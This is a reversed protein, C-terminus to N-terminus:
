ASPSPRRSRTRARTRGARVPRAPAAAVPGLGVQEGPQGSGHAGGVGARVRGRRRRGARRCGSPEATGDAATGGPPGAPRQPDGAPTSIESNAIPSATTSANRTGSRIPVTGNGILTSSATAPLAPSVLSATRCVPLMTQPTAAAPARAARSRRATAAAARPRGSRARARQGPQHEQEGTRDGARVADRGLDGTPCPRGGTGPPLTPSLHVGRPLVGVQDPLAGEAVRHRQERGPDREDGGRPGSPSSWAIVAFLTM